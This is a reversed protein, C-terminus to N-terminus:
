SAKSHVLGAEEGPKLKQLWSEPTLYGLGDALWEMHPILLSHQWWRDKSGGLTGAVLIFASVIFLGRLFGFGGGLTRDMENLVSNRVWDTLFHTMLAGILLGVMFLGAHAVASRVAPQAILDHLLNAVLAGLAWALFFALVWTLLNLIERSFGRFVGLLISILIVALICWDVWIM